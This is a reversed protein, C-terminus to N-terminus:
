TGESPQGGPIVSRMFTRGVGDLFMWFDTKSLYPVVKKLLVLRTVYDDWSIMGVGRQAYSQANCNRFRGRGETVAKVM